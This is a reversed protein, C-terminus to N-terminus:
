IRSFASMKVASIELIRCILGFCDLQIFLVVLLLVFYTNIKPHVTDKLPLAPTIRDKKSRTTLLDWWLLLVLLTNTHTQISEVKSDQRHCDVEM